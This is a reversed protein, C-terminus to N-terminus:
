KINCYLTLFLLTGFCIIAKFQWHQIYGQIHNGCALEKPNVTYAHFFYIKKKKSFLVDQAFTFHHTVLIPTWRLVHNTEGHNQM